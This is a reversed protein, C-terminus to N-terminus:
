CHHSVGYLECDAMCGLAALQEVSRQLLPRAMWQTNVCDINLAQLQPDVSDWLAFLIAHKPSLALDNSSLADPTEAQM